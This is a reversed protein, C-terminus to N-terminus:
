ITLASPSGNCVTGRETKLLACAQETFMRSNLPAFPSRTSSGNGKIDPLTGIIAEGGLIRQGGIEPKGGKSEVTGPVTGIGV